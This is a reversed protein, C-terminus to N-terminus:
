HWGDEALARATGSWAHRTQGFGHAFILPPAASDGFSECALALGDTSRLVQVRGPEAGHSHSNRHSGSAVMRGLITKARRATLVGGCPTSAQTRQSIAATCLLRPKGSAREAPVMAGHQM